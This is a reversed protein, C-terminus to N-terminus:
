FALSISRSVSKTENAVWFLKKRFVMIVCLIGEQLLFGRGSSIKAKGTVSTPYSLFLERLLNEFCYLISINLYLDIAVPV